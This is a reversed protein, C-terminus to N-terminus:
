ERQSESSRCRVALWDRAAVCRPRRCVRCGRRSGPRRPGTMHHFSTQSNQSLGMQRGQESVHIYATVEQYFPRVTACLRAPKVAPGGCTAHAPRCMRAM